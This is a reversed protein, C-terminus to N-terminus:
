PARLDYDGFEFVTEEGPNNSELFVGVSGATLQDDTTEGRYQDNVFFTYHSGEGHVAIRNTQQPSTGAGSRPAISTFWDPAILRQVKLMQTDNVAFSSYKKPTPTLRFAIGYYVAPSGSVQRINMAVNFTEPLSQVLNWFQAFGKLTKTSLVFKGNAAKASQVAYEDTTDGAALKAAIPGGGLVRWNAPPRAKVTQAVARATASAQAVATSRAVASAQAVASARAVATAQTLATASSRAQLTAFSDVTTSPSYPQPEPRQTAALQFGIVVVAILPVVLWAPNRGGLTVPAAQGAKGPVAPEAPYIVRPAVPQVPSHATGNVELVPPVSPTGSLRGNSAGVAVTYGLAAAWAEVAWKSAESSLGLNDELRKELRGVRLAPPMSVHPDRLERPVGERAAGVLVAIERRYTGAYDRLLAELRLPDESLDAGFKEVLDGLTQRAENYM